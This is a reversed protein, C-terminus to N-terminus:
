WSDGGGSGDSSGGGFDSSSSSGSSWSSSSSEYTSSSEYSSSEYLRPIKEWHEDVFSCCHCHRTIKQEGEAYHTAQKVVRSTQEVTLEQCNPCQQYVSSLIYARIHIDSPDATPYCTPCQWGLFLVSGLRQAVQEPAELLSQIQDSSVQNMPYHCRSCHTPRKSESQQFLRFNTVRSYGLPSITVADQPLPLCPVSEKTDWQNSCCYCKHTVLRKGPQNWTPQKVMKSQHTATLENCVPCVSYEQSNLVTGRLHFGRGYLSTSCPVCRWGSYVMSGLQQATQQPQNLLLSLEGATLEQMRQKCTACHFREQGTVDSRKIRSEGEPDLLVRNSRWYLLLGGVSASGAGLGAIIALILHEVPNLSPAIATPQAPPIESLSDQVPASSSNPSFTDPPVPHSQSDHKSTTIPPVGLPKRASPRSTLAPSAGPLPRPVRSSSGSPSYQNLQTILARTGALVGANFQGQKFRPTVEQHLITRIQSDPLLVTLGRGTIIETRRDGRSVLFLVGNDKGKKGIGWTNFLETAFAKPSAAPSTDPVTVVAIESSNKAELASIQRNLEAKTGADLMNAMDTVWGSNTRRPNPVSQIPVALCFSTFNIVVFSLIGLPLTGSGSAQRHM